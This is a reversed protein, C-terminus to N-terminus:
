FSKVTVEAPLVKGLAQRYGRFGSDLVAVKVGKGRQGARHWDVVGLRLASQRIEEQPTDPDHRRLLRTAKEGLRDWLTKAAPPEQGAQGGPAALALAWASLCLWASTLVTLGLGRSRNRKM